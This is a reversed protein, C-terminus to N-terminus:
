AQVFSHDVISLIEPRGDLSERRWLVRKIEDSADPSFDASSRSNALSSISRGVVVFGVPSPRISLIEPRGDLSERRWLVRKGGLRSVFRGDGTPKTPLLSSPSM